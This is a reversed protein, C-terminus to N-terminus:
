LFLDDLYESFDEDRSKEQELQIPASWIESAKAEMEKEVKVKKVEKLAENESSDDSSHRSRKKKSKKSKKHKSKKKTVEKKKHHYNLKYSCDPCLRVKVLANKKEMEEMYAFNVEWTRLNEREECKRKGCIFQGKGIKLENETRWRMAVKNEKYRSLDCICYEKFLKEYYKKAMKQEWSLDEINVDDWLFRHNQKVIDYDTKDKSDDRGFRKTAGEYYLFYENILMKHRDYANMTLFNQRQRRGEALAAEERFVSSSAKAKSAMNTINEHRYAQEARRIAMTGSDESFTSGVEVADRSFDAMKVYFQIFQGECITKLTVIQYLVNLNFIV